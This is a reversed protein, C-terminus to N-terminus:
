KLNMDHWVLKSVKIPVVSRVLIRAYKRTDDPFGGRPSFGITNGLRMSDELILAGGETDVIQIEPKVVMGNELMIEFPGGISHKYGEINLTIHQSDRWVRQPPSIQLEQWDSGFSLDTAIVLQIPTMQYVFFQYLGITAVLIALGIILFIKTKSM